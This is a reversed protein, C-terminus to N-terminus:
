RCTSYNVYFLVVVVLILLKNVELKWLLKEEM